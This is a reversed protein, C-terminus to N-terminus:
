DNKNLIGQLIREDEESEAILVTKPVTHMYIYEILKEYMKITSDNEMMHISKTIERISFASDMDDFYSKMIKRIKKQYKEIEKKDVEPIVTGVKMKFEKLKLQQLLMTLRIKNKPKDKGLEIIGDKEVVYIGFPIQESAVKLVGDTQNKFIEYVSNNIIIKM